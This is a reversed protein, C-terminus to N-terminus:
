QTSAALRDRVAKVVKIVYSETMRTVLWDPLAGAPDVHITYVADCGDQGARAALHWSGAFAGPLLAGNSPLSESERHALQWRVDIVSENTSVEDTVDIVYHRDKVPAPLDLRQYVRTATGDRALVRSEAVSPIFEPFSNYDSVLQYVTVPPVAFRVLGRVEPIGSDTLTRRQIEVDDARQVSRWGHRAADGSAFLPQYFGCLLLPIVLCYERV